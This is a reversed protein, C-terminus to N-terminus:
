RINNAVEGFFGELTTFMDQGWPIFGTIFRIITPGIPAILTYFHSDRIPPKSIFGTKTGYFLIISYVSLYLIIFLGIGALKNLWGLLVLNVLRELIRGLGQILLIVLIFVIFFAVVPLWRNSLHLSGKMHIALISSLKVAAALGILGCVLSLLGLILGKRWGQIVALFLIVFSFIDIM